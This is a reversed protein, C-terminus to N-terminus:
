LNRSVRYLPGCSHWLLLCLNGMFVLMSLCMTWVMSDDWREPWVVSTLQHHRSTSIDAWVSSLVLVTCAIGDSIAVQRKMAAAAAFDEKKVASLMALELAEREKALRQLDPQAARALLRSAARSPANVSRILPCKSAQFAAPIKRGYQTAARM